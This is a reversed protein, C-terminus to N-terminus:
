IRHPEKVAVAVPLRVVPRDVEDVVEIWEYAPLKGDVAQDIALQAALRKAEAKAAEDDSLATGVLDPVSHSKDGFNFFYRRMM